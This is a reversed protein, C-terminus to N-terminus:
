SMEQKVSGSAKNCRERFNAMRGIRPWNLGSEM